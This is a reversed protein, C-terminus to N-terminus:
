HLPISRSQVGTRRMFISKMKGNAADRAQDLKGVVFV